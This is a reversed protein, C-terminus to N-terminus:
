EKPVEDEPVVELKVEPEKENAGRELAIIVQDLMTMSGLLADMNKRGKVDVDNLAFNVAKLRKIIEAMNM